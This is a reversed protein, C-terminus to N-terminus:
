LISIRKKAENNLELVNCFMGSLRKGSTEIFINGFRVSRRFSTNKGKCELRQELPMREVNLQISETDISKIQEKDIASDLYTSEIIFKIDQNFYAQILKLEARFQRQGLYIDYGLDQDFIRQELLDLEALKGKQYAIYLTWALEKGRSPMLLEMRCQKHGSVDNISTKNEVYNM